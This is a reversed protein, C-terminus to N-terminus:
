ERCGNPCLVYEDENHFWARAGAVDHQMQVILAEVSAFKEEARLRHLFDLKLTAGYLDASFDLLYAEV